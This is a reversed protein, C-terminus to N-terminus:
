TRKNFKSVTKKIDKGVQEEDPLRDPMKIGALIGFLDSELLAVEKYDKLMVSFSVAENQSFVDARATYGKKQKESITCIAKLTGTNVSLIKTFRYIPAGIAKLIQNLLADKNKSRSNFISIDAPTSKLVALREQYPVTPYPLKKEEVLKLIEKPPVIDIIGLSGKESTCYLYPLYGKEGRIHKYRSMPLKLTLGGISITNWERPPPKLATIEVPAIELYKRLSDDRYFFFKYVYVPYFYWACLAVVLLVTFSIGIIRKTKQKM